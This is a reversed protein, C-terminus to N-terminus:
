KSKTGGRCSWSFFADRDLQEGSALEAVGGGVDEDTHAVANECCDLGALSGALNEAFCSVLKLIMGPIPHLVYIKLTGRYKHQKTTLSNM